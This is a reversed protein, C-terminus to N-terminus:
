KKNQEFYSLLQAVTYVSAFRSNYKNYLWDIMEKGKRPHYFFRPSNFTIEYHNGKIFAIVSVMEYNASLNIVSINKEECFKRVIKATLWHKHCSLNIRDRPELSKLYDIMDKKTIRYKNENIKIM